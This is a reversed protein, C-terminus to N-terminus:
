YLLCHLVIFRCQNRVQNMLAILTLSSFTGCIVFLVCSHMHTTGKSVKLREAQLSIPYKMKFSITRQSLNPMVMCLSTNVQRWFTLGMLILRAFEGSYLRKMVAVWPVLITNLQSLNPENPGPILIPLFTEEQLFRIGRPNNACTMYLAGTSHVGRKVAQFRCLAIILIILRYLSHVQWDLNIQWVLGCPLNVFRQDTEGIDRVEWQGGCVRELGAPLNRWGWGHSVDGIPLSPDIFADFGQHIRNEPPSRGPLDDPGERWLQLQEYKGPRLLWRGIARDPPVFPFIKTPTRKTSGDALRKSKFLIGNCGDTECEPTELHYLEAPPYLHWCMPCLFYYVIFDDFCVNLRKEVTPFTRAMSELGAVPEPSSSLAVYIGDLMIKITEHTAGKFTAMVFARIYANRIAPHESLAQPIEAHYPNPSDGREPPPTHRPHDDHQLHYPDFLRHRPIFGPDDAIDEDSDSHDHDPDAEPHNDVSDADSDIDESDSPHLIKDFRDFESDSSFDLLDGDGFHPQFHDEDDSDPFDLPTYSRGPAESGQDPSPSLGSITPHPL